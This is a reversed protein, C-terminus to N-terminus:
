GTLFPILESRTREVGLALAITSLKKISNLRLQFYLVYNIALILAFYIMFVPFSLILNKILLLPKLIKDFLFEEAFCISLLFTYTKFMLILLVFLNFVAKSSQFIYCAIRQNFLFLYEVFFCLIWCKLFLLFSFLIKLYFIKRICCLRIFIQSFSYSLFMYHLWIFNCNTSILLVCVQVDENRLEDILVAIPYLSDDTNSDSSAMRFCFLYFLSWFFCCFYIHM